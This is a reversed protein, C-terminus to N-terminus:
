YFIDQQYAPDIQQLLEMYYKMYNDLSGFTSIVSVFSVVVVLVGFALSIIGLILGVRGKDSPTNTGGKSLLAFIIALAGCIISPYACCGTAIGVIGLVMSAIGFGQSHRNKPDPPTYQSYSYEM